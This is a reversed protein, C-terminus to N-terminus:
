KSSMNRLLEQAKREGDYNSDSGWTYGVQSFAAIVAKGEPTAGVDILAQGFAKKFNEDKMAPSVPSVCVADNYIGETVGIVNTEHWIDEKRGLSGTWDKASRLQIHAFSVIVDAQEAALRAVSAGHSSSQVVHALDRISKGYNAQLWLSPYIYGSSSTAGLVCWTAANLDDWSLKEGANVKAALERGKPSPGAVIICRYYESLDGKYAGPTGDNWDRPDLSNKSYAKRLATLLVEVEGSYLAVTGGSIFGADATGASLAEACAQYSSSVSLSVDKVDYGRKKLGAKLMDGLPATKAMIVDAADYPSIAISLKEVTKLEAACAIHALAVLLLSVLVWKKMM